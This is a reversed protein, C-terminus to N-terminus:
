VGTKQASPTAVKAKKDSLPTLSNEAPRKKGAEPQFFFTCMSIM